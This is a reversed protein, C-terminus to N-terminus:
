TKKKMKKRKKKKKQSTVILCLNATQNLSDVNDWFVEKPTVIKNWKKDEKYIFRQVSKSVCLKKILWVVKYKNMSRRSYWTTTCFLWVIAFLKEVLNCVKRLPYVHFFDSLFAICFGGFGNQQNRRSVFCSALM